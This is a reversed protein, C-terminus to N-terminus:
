DPFANSYECCLLSCLFFRTGIVTLDRGKLVNFPKVMIKLTELSVLKLLALTTM